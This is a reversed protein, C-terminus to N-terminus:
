TTDMSLKLRAKLKTVSFFLMTQHVLIMIWTLQKYAAFEIRKVDNSKAAKDQENAVWAEAAAKSTWDPRYKVGVNNPGVFEVLRSTSGINYRAMGNQEVREGANRRNRDRLATETLRENAMDQYEQFNAWDRIGTIAPMDLTNDTYLSSREFTKKRPPLQFKPLIVPVNTVPKTRVGARSSSSSGSSSSPTQDTPFPSSDLSM